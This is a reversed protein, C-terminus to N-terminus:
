YKPRIVEVEPSKFGESNVPRNNSCLKALHEENGFLKGFKNLRINCVMIVM